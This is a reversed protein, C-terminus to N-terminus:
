YIRNSSVEWKAGGTSPSCCTPGRGQALQEADWAAKRARKQRAGRGRQRDQRVKHAPTGAATTAALATASAEAAMASAHADAPGHGEMPLASVETAAEPGHPDIGTTPHGAGGPEEWGPLEVQM